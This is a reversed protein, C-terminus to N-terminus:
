KGDIEGKLLLEELRRKTKAHEKREEELEFELREVKKKLSTLSSSDEEEETKGGQKNNDNKIFSSSSDTKPYEEKSGNGQVMTRIQDAFYKEISNEKESFNKLFDRVQDDEALVLANQGQTNKLSLVRDFHLANDFNSVLTKMANLPVCEKCAIMLATWGNENRRELEDRLLGLNKLIRLVGEFIEEHYYKCATMLITWSGSDTVQMQRTLFIRNNNANEDDYDNCVKIILNFIEPQQRYISELLPTYQTEDRLELISKQYQQLNFNPNNNITILSPFLISKFTQTDGKGIIYYLDDPHIM